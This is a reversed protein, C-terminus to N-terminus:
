QLSLVTIRDTPVFVVFCCFSSKCYSTGAVVDATMQVYPWSFVFTLNSSGVVAGTEGCFLEVFGNKSQDQRVAVLANRAALVTPVALSLLFISRYM